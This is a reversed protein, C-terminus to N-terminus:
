KILPLANWMSIGYFDLNPACDAHWMGTGRLQKYLLVYWYKPKLSVSDDFWVQHTVGDQVYNFYASQTTEDYKVPSTRLPFLNYAIDDYSNQVANYAKANFGNKIADEDAQVMCMFNPVIKSCVFNYGYWPFAVVLESTKIGLSLYQDVGLCLLYYIFTDQDSCTSQFCVFLYM